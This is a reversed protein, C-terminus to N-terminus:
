KGTSKPAELVKLQTISWPPAGETTATQTLRIFKAQTPKFTIATTAGTGSGIAVQTWTTGNLSTEVKYGRPYGPNPPPGPPPAQAAAAAAVPDNPDPPPGGRGGAGRAGRGGGGGGGGRGGATSVFQIEAVTAPQPLEVQFWMGAAQPTQSSWGTLNLATRAAAANHSATLKWTTMDPAMAKPLSSELESVTWPTKRTSIDTRIRKVDAPTVVGGTNGFSTRVYSAVAAIWDDPNMGMPIMLESYTKGDVPGNLGLLLTKVIYDRHGNVRPSGALPPAMTGTTGAKAM